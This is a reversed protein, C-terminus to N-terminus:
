VVVPSQRANLGNHEKPCATVWASSSKDSQMWAKRGFDSQDLQSIERGLEDRISEKLITTLTAHSVVNDKQAGDAATWLGWPTSAAAGTEADEAERVLRTKSRM